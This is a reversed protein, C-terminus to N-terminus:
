KSHRKKLKVQKMSELVESRKFYTRGNMKYHPIIGKTMWDHVTVLSVSFMKAIDSRSIIDDSGNLTSPSIVALADKIESRIITRLKNDLDETKIVSIEM